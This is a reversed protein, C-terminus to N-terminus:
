AAAGCGADGEAVELVSPRHAGQCYAPDRRHSWSCSNRIYIRNAVVECGGRQQDHVVVMGPGRSRVTVCSDEGHSEGRRTGGQRCPCSQQCEFGKQQVGTCATIITGPGMVAHKSEWSMEILIAGAM